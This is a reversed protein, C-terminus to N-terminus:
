PALKQKIPLTITVETGEGLQSSVEINGASTKVIQYAIYLGIGTGKGVSKTTFFPDFIKDKIEPAIGKGNDRIKVRVFDNSMYETQIVIQKENEGAREELADIANEIINAFVQNIQAPQCEVLPLQGYQKIVSIKDQQLRSNFIGLASDIGSHLNITKVESEHLRSFNRLLLVIQRIREAGNKMSAFTKPLDECVFDLDLAKIAEQIKADANPYHQQYLRLISIVNQMYAEAHALNGYIFSVPNNIEHAIGAVMRGLSSMKETQILQAQAQKIERTYAAVRQILHNLTNTLVGVEDETTVPAQLEFNAEKTVQEAIKTTAELPYAIAKSTYIALAAATIVSVLLSVAQVITGLNEAQRYDKFEEKTEAQFSEVLVSLMESLETYKKSVESDKFKRLEQQVRQWDDPQLDAKKLKSIIAEIRRSYEEFILNINRLNKKLNHSNLQHYSNELNSYELFFNKNIEELILNTELLVESMKLSEQNFINKSFDLSILEQERAKAQLMTTQLQNVLMTAKHARELQILAQKKYGYELFRGTATGLIAIGIALAYGFSIKSRIKAKRFWSNLRNTGKYKKPQRFM